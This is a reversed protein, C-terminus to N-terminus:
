NNKVKIKEELINKDHAILEWLDKINKDNEKQVAVFKKLHEFWPEDPKTIKDLRRPKELHIDKIKADSTYARTKDDPLLKEENYIMDYDDCLWLSLQM